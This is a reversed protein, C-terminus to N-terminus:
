QEFTQNPDKYAFAFVKLPWAPLHTFSTSLLTHEPCFSQLPPREESTEVQFYPGLSWIVRHIERCSVELNLLLQDFIRSRNFFIKNCFVGFTCFFLLITYHVVVDLYM